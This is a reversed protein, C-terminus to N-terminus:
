SGPKDGTELARELSQLGQLFEERVSQSFPNKQQLDVFLTWPDNCTQEAVELLKKYGLTGISSPRARILDLVRGVLHTIGQTRAAERDHEEPSMRILDLGLSSLGAAVQQYVAEEGRVIDLVMPLGRVGKGASDPGFMPHSALITGANTLEQEMIQAPWLKVSCTDIVTAGPKLHPNIARCVQPMSSIASCIYVIDARSLQDLHIAEVGPPVPKASRNAGLVPGQELLTSAWFYGFRGM